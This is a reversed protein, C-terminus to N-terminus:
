RLARHHQFRIAGLSTKQHKWRNPMETLRLGTRETFVVIDAGNNSSDDKQLTRPPTPATFKVLPCSGYDHPIEFSLKPVWHALFRQELHAKHHRTIHRLNTWQYAPDHSHLTILTTIIQDILERPLAPQSPM